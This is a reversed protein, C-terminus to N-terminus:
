STGRDRLRDLAVAAVIILGTVIEQIWNPLSIQTTGTRITAMIFAGLLSGLITGQGGSLSAGGIVVAAIVDLELGAAVTPDGVTLRSFQMLGALGAFLGGLVFVLLKVRSVPVGCLRAASENSGIAVVHRGFVTRTLLLSVLVAFGLTVWVGTPVLRWQETDGLRALVNNLWTGPVPPYVSQEHAIGKAIGRFLLLSGLTVIFPGVKLKTVLLGNWLGCLTGAVVGALLAVWPGQGAKLAIAIAVSSLAVVSGISLDIGGSVIILTAGLAAMCVIASQRFILEINERSVWGQPALRAFILFIVLWVLILGAVNILAGFRRNVMKMASAIGRTGAEDPTGTL